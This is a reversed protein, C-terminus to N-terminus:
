AGTGHGHRATVARLAEAKTVKVQRANYRLGVWFTFAAGLAFGAGGAMFWVPITLTM